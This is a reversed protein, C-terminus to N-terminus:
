PSPNPLRKSQLLFPNAWMEREIYHLPQAVGRDIFPLTQAWGREKISLTTAWGGEKISLSTAGQGEGRGGVGGALRRLAM